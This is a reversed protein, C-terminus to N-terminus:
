REGGYVISNLIATAKESGALKEIIAAAFAIATGMGRSTIINGDVTVPDTTTQAGLIREELGPYCCARRGELLGLQGFVTPAACIAAINGGAKCHDTVLTCLASSEALHTTGPMGGPLILMEADSFDTESFLADAQMSIRHSTTVTLSPNMSIRTVPLSARRMMDVVTLAEVTEYGDALFIYNM